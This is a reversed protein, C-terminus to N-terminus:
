SSSSGHHPTQLRIYTRTKRVTNSQVAVVCCLFLSAVQFSGIRRTCASTCLSFQAAKQQTIANNKVTEFWHFKGAHPVVHIRGFMCLFVWARRMDIYYLSVYVILYIEQSSPYAFPLTQRSQHNLLVIRVPFCKRTMVSPLLDVKTTCYVVSWLGTRVRILFCNTTMPTCTLTASVVWVPSSFGTLQPLKAEASTYWVASWKENM